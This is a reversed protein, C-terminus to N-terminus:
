CIIYIGEGSATTLGDMHRLIAIFNFEYDNTDTVLTLNAVDGETVNYRFQQFRVKIAAISSNSCITICIRNM